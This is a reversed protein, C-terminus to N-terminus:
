KIKSKIRYAVNGSALNALWSIKASEIKEAGLKELGRQSRLNSKAVYFVIEDAFHLAYNIMLKKISGNYKGGWHDRSLFTWGIEVVGDEPEILKYRSSGIVKESKKDLIILAGKTALSEEFFRTFGKKTCRTKDPHQEWILPDSAVKFLPAFDRELMPRIIVLENELSPQLNYKM